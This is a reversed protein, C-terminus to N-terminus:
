KEFSLKFCGTPFLRKYNGDKEINGDRIKRYVFIKGPAIIEKYEHLGKVSQSTNTANFITLKTQAHFSTFYKTLLISKV